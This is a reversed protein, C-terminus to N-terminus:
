ANPRMAKPFNMKFNGASIASSSIGRSFPVRIVTQGSKYMDM